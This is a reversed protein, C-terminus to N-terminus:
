NKSESLSSFNDSSGNNKNIFNKYDNLFSTESKNDDNNNININYISTNSDSGNSNNNGISKTITEEM